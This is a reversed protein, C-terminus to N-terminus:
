VKVPADAREWAHLAEEDMIAILADAVEPDFQTGKHELIDARAEPYPKMGAYSRPSTMADYADAVALIRAEVPIERGKMGDPYGTGDYREHHWRAGICLGPMETVNRLIEYGIVSHHKVIERESDTLEDPKALIDDPIIIKGIDHVLGMAFLTDQKDKEMGLKEAIRSAYLAVRASHGPNMVNKTDVTEAMAEMIQLSLTIDSPANEATLSETGEETDEAEQVELGQLLQENLHRLDELLGDHASIVTELRKEKVAAEIERAKDSLDEAGITRATSKLSHVSIRYNDWDEKEFFDQLEQEKGSDVFARLQSIYFPEDDMCYNLGEKVNLMPFSVSIPPKKGKGSSQVRAENEEFAKRGWAVGDQVKSDPLLERIMGYLQAAVVPKTLFGRFGAKQFREQQDELNGAATLMIVPTDPCLNERSIQEMAELGDMIPMMYDMVVLDYHKERLKHLAENGDAAMEMTGGTRDLVKALLELNMSNDDVLLYTVEPTRPIHYDQEQRKKLMDMLESMQSMERAGISEPGMRSIELLNNFFALLRDGAERINEAYRKVDGDAGKELILNDFGLISNIPTKIEHSMQSLFEAKARNADEAQKRAIQADKGAEELKELTEQLKEFEPTELSFFLILLGITAAYYGMAVNLRTFTQLGYIGIVICTALVIALTQKSSYDARHIAFYGTALLLFYVPVIVACILFLPGHYYVGKEYYYVTGTFLNQIVLASQGALILRNMMGLGTNKVDAHVYASIYGFYAFTAYSSSMINAIHFVHHLSLPLTAGMSEATVIALVDLVNAVLVALTLTRFARTIPNVKRRSLLYIGLILDFCIASIEMIAEHVDM